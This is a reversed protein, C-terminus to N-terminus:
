SGRKSNPLLKASADRGTDSFWENQAENQTSPPADQLRQALSASFREAGEPNLHCFQDGFFRDPWHPMLDGTVHFLPYRREYVALYAAFQDRMVPRVLRWTADNVPMAIFWTQIRHVELLALLRDFYLDLIPLPRFAEMSGEVAVVGSGPATGFYYQGRSALAEHLRVQNGPWRLVFGGHILSAAYFPPFRLQYLKDRVISPLGDAHRAEYVSTDGIGHSATRLAEVDSASLFGFRISREWFLDPRTFHSPDFSLIVLKPPSACALARDLAAYAEIAKGGGIALNTVRIPLRVPLIDVAARSDGLIIADGLDCRELMLQKAHWSPYEPDMFALPVAAVWAWVLGFSIATSLAFLRLYTM